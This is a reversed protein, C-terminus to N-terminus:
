ISYAMLTRETVVRTSAGNMIGIGGGMTIGDAWCLIPKPFTHILYDVFYEATFYDAAIRIGAQQQLGVVLAKVDRTLKAMETGAPM